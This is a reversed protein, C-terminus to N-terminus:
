QGEGGEIAEALDEARTALHKIATNIAGREFRGLVPEGEELVDRGADDELIKTLAYISSALERIQEAHHRIYSM